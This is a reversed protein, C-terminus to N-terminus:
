MNKLEVGEHIEGHLFANKRIVDGEDIEPLFASKHTIPHLVNV